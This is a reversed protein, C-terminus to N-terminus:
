DWLTEYLKFDDAFSASECISKYEPTGVQPVIFYKRLAEIFEKWGEGAEGTDTSSHRGNIYISFQWPHVTPNRKGYNVVLKLEYQGQGNSRPEKYTFGDEDIKVLEGKLGKNRSGHDIIYQVLEEFKEKNTKSSTSSNSSAQSSSNNSNNKLVWETLLDDYDQTGADPLFMYAEAAEVFSEYDNRLISQVEKGDVFIRLFFTGSTKDYSVVIDRDFEEHGDNYHEGLHFSYDKIDKRIIRELESSAHDIHYKILKEFRKKYSGSSTTTSAAPKSMYHWENLKM